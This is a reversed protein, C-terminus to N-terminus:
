FIDLEGEVAENTSAYDGSTNEDQAVPEDDVQSVIEESKHLDPKNAGESDEVEQELKDLKAIANLLGKEIAEQDAKFDGVLNELEQIRTQSSELTKKLVNNEEKLTSIVVVAKNIKSELLLIQELTIM